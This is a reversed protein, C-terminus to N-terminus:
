WGGIFNQSFLTKVHTQWETQPPYTEQLLWWISTVLLTLTLINGTVAVLDWYCLTLTHGLPYPHTHRPILTIDLLSPYTWPNIDLPPPIEMPIPIYLPTPIGHSWSMWGWYQCRTSVVFLCVTPLHATHIRSSRKRTKCFLGGDELDRSM